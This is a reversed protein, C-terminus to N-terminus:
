FIGDNRGILTKKNFLIKKQQSSPLLVLFYGKIFNKKLLTIFTGNSTAMKNCSYIIMNINCFHVFIESGLTFIKLPNIIFNFSILNYIAGFFSKKSFISGLHTLYTCFFNKKLFFTRKLLCISNLGNKKQSLLSNKKVYILKKHRLISTIPKFKQLFIYIKLFIKKKFLQKCFQIKKSFFHTKLFIVKLLFEIKFFFFFNIRTLKKKFFFFNKYFNSFDIIM